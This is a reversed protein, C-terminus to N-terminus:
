KISARESGLLRQTFWAAFIFCVITSGVVAAFLALSNQQLIDTYQMVGVGAPIFFLPLHLLLKQAAHNVNKNPPFIFLCILLLLMGITASPIPLNLTTKLIDGVLQFLVFIPIYLIFKM